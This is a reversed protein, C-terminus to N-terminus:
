FFSFYIPVTKELFYAFFYKQLFVVFCKVIKFSALTYLWLLNNSDSWSKTIATFCIYFLVSCNFPPAIWHSNKYYIPEPIHKELCIVHMNVNRRNTFYVQFQQTYQRWPQLNHQWFPSLVNDVTIILHFEICCNNQYCPFTINFNMSLVNMINQCVM